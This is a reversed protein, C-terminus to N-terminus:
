TGPRSRRGGGVRTTEDGPEQGALTVVARDAREERDRAEDPVDAQRQEDSAEGEEGEGPGGTRSSRARAPHQPEAPAQGDGAREPHEDQLTGVCGGAGEAGANSVPRHRSTASVRM